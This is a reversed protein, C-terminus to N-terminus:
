LNMNQKGTSTHRGELGALLVLNQLNLIKLKLYRAPFFVPLSLDLGIIGVLPEGIARNRKRKEKKKCFFIPCLGILENTFADTRQQGM